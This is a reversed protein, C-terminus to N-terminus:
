GRQDIKEGYKTYFTVPCVARRGNTEDFVHCAEFPPSYIHLTVTSQKDNPNEMRHLGISDNIYTVEEEAYVDRGIEVMTAAKDEPWAYRTEELKGQLVKVFCHSDAHDHIRSGIGPGWCLLLINYKGNGTDVLNRTYKDPDFFAYKAWDGQPIKYKGLVRKVEEIDVENSEFLNKVTKQLEDM